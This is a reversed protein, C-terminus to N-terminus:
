CVAARLRSTEGRNSPRRFDNMQKLVCGGSPPQGSSPRPTPKAARKLVCGGSPPQSHIEMMQEFSPKTEVCLRGFAAPRTNQRHRCVRETEVCLRGFAAPQQHRPPLLCPYRPKLVCGGSPPQISIAFRSSNPKTEVCLRGFAAPHPMSLWHGGSSPKM